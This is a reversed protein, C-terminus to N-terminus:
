SPPLPPPQPSSQPPSLPPDDSDESSLSQGDSESESDINIDLINAPFAQPKRKKQDPHTVELWANYRVDSDLDFGEEFCTIFKAIEEETFDSKSPPLSTSSTFEVSRSHSLPTHFPKQRISKHVKLYQSIM